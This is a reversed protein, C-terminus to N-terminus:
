MIVDFVITTSAMTTYFPVAQICSGLNALAPDWQKAVQALDAQQM